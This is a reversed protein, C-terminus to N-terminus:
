FAVKLNLWTADASINNVTSSGNEAMATVGPAVTYTIGVTTHKDKRNGKTGTATMGYFTVDGMAYSGGIDSSKVKAEGGTIADHVSSGMKITVAGVALSAGVATADTLGSLATERGTKGAAPASAKKVNSAKQAMVTIPGMSYNMGAGSAGGDASAEAYVSLGGMVPAHYAIFNGNGGIATFAMNALTATGGSGVGEDINSGLVGDMRDLAGDTNGMRLTGFDGSASIFADDIGGSEVQVQQEAGFTVGTDSTTSGQLVINGDTNFSQAGLSPSLVDFSVNGSISIDAQAATVSMAVLATTALLVKRM